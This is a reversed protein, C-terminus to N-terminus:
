SANVYRYSDIFLGLSTMFKSRNFRAEPYWHAIGLAVSKTSEADGAMLPGGLWLGHGDM